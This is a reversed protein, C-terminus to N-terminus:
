TRCRRLFPPWGAWDAHQVGEQASVPIEYGESAETIQSITSPYEEAHNNHRFASAGGLGGAETSGEVTGEQITSLDTTPLPM